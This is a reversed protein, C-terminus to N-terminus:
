LLLETYFGIWACTSLSVEELVYAASLNFNRFNFFGITVGLSFYQAVGLRSSESVASFM